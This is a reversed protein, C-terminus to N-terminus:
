SSMDLWIGFQGAQPDLPYIVDGMAASADSVIRQDEGQYAIRVGPLTGGGWPDIYDYLTVGPSHGAVRQSPTLKANAAIQVVAEAVTDRDEVSAFVPDGYLVFASM